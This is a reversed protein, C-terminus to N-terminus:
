NYMMRPKVNKNMQMLESAITDIQADIFEDLSEWEEEEYAPLTMKDVTKGDKIFRVQPGEIKAWAYEADDYPHIESIQAYMDGAANPDSYHVSFKQRGHQYSMYHDYQTASRIYRKMKNGNGKM